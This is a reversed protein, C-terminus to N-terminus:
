TVLIPLEFGKEIKVPVKWVIKQYKMRELVSMGAEGDVDVSGETSSMAPLPASVAASTDTFMDLAVTAVKNASIDHDLSKSCNTPPTWALNIFYNRKEGSIQVQGVVLQIKKEASALAASAAAVQQEVILGAAAVAAPGDDDSDSYQGEVVEESPAGDEGEGEEVEEVAAGEKRLRKKERREEKKEKRLRKKLEQKDLEKEQKERMRTPVSQQLRLIDAGYVPLIDNQWLENGTKPAEFFSHVM